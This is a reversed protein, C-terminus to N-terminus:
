PIAQHSDTTERDALTEERKREKAGGREEKMNLIM